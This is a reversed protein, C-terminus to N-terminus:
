KGSVNKRLWHDIGRWSEMHNFHLNFDHGIDTLRQIDPSTSTWLAREVEPLEAPFLVDHEGLQILVPGRVQGVKDLSPNLIANFTTSLQGATWQDATANDLAIVDPDSEPPYGHNALKEINHIMCYLEWQGDAKNEGRLTFRHLRKNDRLNAFVPAVTAFRRTIMERCTDLDIRMKM